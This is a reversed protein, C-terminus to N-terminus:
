ELIQPSFPSLGLDNKNKWIIFVGSSHFFGILLLSLIVVERREGERDGGGRMICGPKCYPKFQVKPYSIPAWNVVDIPEKKKKTYM